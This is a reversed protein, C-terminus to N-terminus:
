PSKTKLLTSRFSMCKAANIKGNVTLFLRVIKMLLLMEEFNAVLILDDAFSMCSLKRRHIIWIGMNSEDLQKIMDDLVM